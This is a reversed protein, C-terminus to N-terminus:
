KPTPKNLTGDHTDSQTTKHDIAANIKKNTFSFFRSVIDAGSYGVTASVALIVEYLNSPVNNLRGRVLLVYLVIALVSILHSLIDETFYEGFKFQVNALKAKQQLSRAKLLMQLVMGITGALVIEYIPIIM